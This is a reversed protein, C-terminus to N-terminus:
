LLLPCSRFSFTFLSHSLRMIVWFYIAWYWFIIFVLEYLRINKLLGNMLIWCSLNTSRGYLFFSFWLLIGFKILSFDAILQHLGDMSYSSWQFISIYLDSVHAVSEARFSDVFCWQQLVVVSSVFKPM